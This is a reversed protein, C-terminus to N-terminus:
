LGGNVFNPIVIDNMKKSFETSPIFLHHADLRRLSFLGDGAHAGLSSPGVEFLEDTMESM